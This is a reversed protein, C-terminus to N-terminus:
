APHNPSSRPKAFGKKVVPYRIRRQRPTGPVWGPSKGRPKPAPAPTGIVALVQAFSNAVLGPSLQSLPKHWPSPSDTVISRALWLQWSLLPM